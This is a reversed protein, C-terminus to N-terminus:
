QCTFSTAVRAGQFETASSFNIAAISIFQGPTLVQANASTCSAPNGDTTTTVTCEISSGSLFGGNVSSTQGIALVFNATAPASTGAHFVTVSFGSATCSEPVRLSSAGVDESFNSGGSPLAVVGNAIEYATITAPLLATSSWVQGGPAGTLGQPGAPGSPGAVGAPGQAGALGAPGQLGQPGQAGALGAPGQLGQPGQAGALGAAGRAGPLGQPGQAGPLGMLGQPGAPGQAGQPGTVNWQKFTELINLCQASTSVLRPIGTVNNVCASIVTNSSQAWIPAGFFSVVLTSLIAKRM